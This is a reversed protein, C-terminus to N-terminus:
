ITSFHLSGSQLKREKSPRYTLLTSEILFSSSALYVLSCPLPATRNVIPLYDATTTTQRTCQQPKVKIRIGHKRKKEKEYIVQILYIVKRTFWMFLKTSIFNNFSACKVHCSIFRFKWDGNYLLFNSMLLIEKPPSIFNPPSNFVCSLLLHLKLFYNSFLVIVM